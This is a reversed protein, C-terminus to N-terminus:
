LFLSHVGKRDDQSGTMLDLLKSLRARNTFSGVRDSGLVLVM